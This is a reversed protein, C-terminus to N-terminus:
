LPAIELRLSQRYPNDPSHLISAFHPNAMADPYNQAELCLGAFRQHEAGSGPTGFSQLTGSTYLQVCPQDTWLRLRMGNDAHVEAVPSDSGDADLVLSADHGLSNPDADAIRRETRFDFATNEVSDISGLPLAQEDAPTYRSAAIRLRHTRIDGSGMLNFYHHQAMNIPTMRDPVAKMEYILSYGSLRMVVEFRVAGPYGQDLHPSLLSFRVANQDLEETHWNRWGLGGPGGHIHHPPLNAPLAYQEGELEFSAGRIRNVVRGIVMGMAYPNHRYDDMNAYGLVVPVGAVHWSQVVCGLSLVRVQVDGDQLVVTHIDGGATSM